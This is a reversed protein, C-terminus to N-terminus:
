GTKRRRDNPLTRIISNNLRKVKLNVTALDVDCDDFAIDVTITQFKVKPLIKDPQLGLKKAWMEAYSVGGGSWIVMTNGQAQFWKYIAIVEYNPTDIDLGTAEPPLILTDDVDFAIIM